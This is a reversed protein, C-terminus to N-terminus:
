DSPGIPVIAASSSDFDLNSRDFEAAEHTLRYTTTGGVQVPCM